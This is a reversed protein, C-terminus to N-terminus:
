KAEQAGAVSSFKEKITSPLFMKAKSKGMTFINGGGGGNSDRNPKFFYWMLALAAVLMILLLLYWM